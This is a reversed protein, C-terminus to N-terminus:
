SIFSNISSISHFFSHIFIHIYTHIQFSHIFYVISHFFLYISSHLDLLSTYLVNWASSQASSWHIKTNMKFVRGRDQDRHDGWREENAIIASTWCRKVATSWYSIPERLPSAPKSQAWLESTQDRIVPGASSQPGLGVRESGRRSSWAETSGQQSPAGMSLQPARWRILVSHNVRCLLFCGGRNFWCSRFPFTCVSVHHLSLDTTLPSRNVNISVSPSM